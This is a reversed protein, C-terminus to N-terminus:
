LVYLMQICIFIINYNRLIMASVFIKVKRIPSGHSPLLYRM